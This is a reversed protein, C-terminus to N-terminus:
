SILWRVSRRPLPQDIRIERVNSSAPVAPAAIRSSAGRVADAAAADSVAANVCDDTQLLPYPASYVTVLRPSAAALPQTTSNSRGAPEVTLLEQSEVRVLVPCCWRKALAEQFPM